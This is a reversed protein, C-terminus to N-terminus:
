YGFITSDMVPYRIGLEVVLIVGTCARSTILFGYCPFQSAYGRGQSGTRVLLM